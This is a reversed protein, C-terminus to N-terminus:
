INSSALIEAITAPAPSASPLSDIRLFTAYGSLRLSDSAAKYTKHRSLIHGPEGIRCGYNVVVAYRYPSKM